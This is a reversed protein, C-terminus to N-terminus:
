LPVMVSSSNCLHPKVVWDKIKSEFNIALWYLNFLRFRLDFPTPSSAAYAKSAATYTLGVKVFIFSSKFGAAEASICSISCTRM